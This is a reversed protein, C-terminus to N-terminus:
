GVLYREYSRAPDFTRGYNKEKQPTAKIAGKVVCANSRAVLCFSARIRWFRIFWLGGVKRCFPPTAPNHCKM